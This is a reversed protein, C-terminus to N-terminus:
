VSDVGVSVVGSLPLGEGQNVWSVWRISALNFSVLWNCESAVVAFIKASLTIVAKNTVSVIETSPLGEVNYGVL